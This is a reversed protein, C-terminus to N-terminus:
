LEDIQVPVQLPCLDNGCGRCVNRRIQLFAIGLLLWFAILLGLSRWLWIQPLLLMLALGLYMLWFEASTYPEAPREFMAALRGPLVHACDHKGECKACYAWLILPAGIALGALYIVGVVGSFRFLALIALVVAVGALALSTVGHFKRSM